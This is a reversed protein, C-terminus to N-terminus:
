KLGLSKIKLVFKKKIRKIVAEKTPVHFVKPPVRIHDNIQIKYFM